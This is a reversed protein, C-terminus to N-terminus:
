IIGLLPAASDYRLQLKLKKFLTWVIRDATQVLECDRWCHVLSGKEGCGAWYQDRTKKTTAVTVSMLHYRVTAKIQTERILLTMCRKTYRNAM